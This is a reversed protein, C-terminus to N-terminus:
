EVIKTHSSRTYFSFLCFFLCYLGLYIFLYKTQPWYYQMIGNSYQWFGTNSFKGSMFYFSYNSILYALTNASTLLILLIITKKYASSITSLKNQYFRAAFWLCAYTPVLFWYAPTICYDNVGGYNVAALDIMVAFIFLTIFVLLSRFYLGAIFFLALSADPLYITTGVHSSRTLIMIFVIISLVVWSTKNLHTM